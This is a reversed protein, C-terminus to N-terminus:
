KVSARLERFSTSRRTRFRFGGANRGSQSTRASRTHCRLGLKLPHHTPRPEFGRRWSCRLLVLRAFHNRGGGGKKFEVAWIEQLARPQSCVPGGPSHSPAAKKQPSQSSGLQWESRHASGIEVVQAAECRGPSDCLESAGSPESWRPCRDASGRHLQGPWESPSTVRIATLAPCMSHVASLHM